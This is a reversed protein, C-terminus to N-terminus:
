CALLAEDDIRRDVHEVSPDDAEGLATAPLDRDVAAVRDRGRLAEGARARRPEVEDIEVPGEGTRRVQAQDLTDGRSPSGDLSLDPTGTFAGDLDVLHLWSAGAGAFREAAAIPDGGDVTIRGRRGESLRVVRGDLVDIAPYVVFSQKRALM